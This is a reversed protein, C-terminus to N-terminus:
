RPDGIVARIAEDRTDFRDSVEEGFRAYARWYLNDDQAVAWVQEGDRVLYGDDVRTVRDRYVSDM